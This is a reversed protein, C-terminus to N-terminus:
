IDFLLPIHVTKGRTKDILFMAQQPREYDAKISLAFANYGILSGNGIFNSMPMYTHWHGYCDWTAPIAKNWQAIAKNVPISLGGVGGNFRLAHGHHLRLTRGYVQILTHYGETIVFTIRKESSFMTKLNCYMFYELSNGQETSIHTKATIRSHNGCSCPITIKLKTHALIYAIGSALLEQAYLIAEVPQLLCNELLEDHINGSIFDGGLWLVLEKIAIDQQEKRVMKVIRQFFQHVRAKAIDLNFHNLGNVKSKRVEEEVHFDSALVVATAESKQETFAPTIEHTYTAGKMKLLAGLENELATIERIATRYKKEAQKKSDVLSHRIRDEKTKSEM